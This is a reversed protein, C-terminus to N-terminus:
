RGSWGKSRARGERLVQLRGVVPVCYQRCGPKEVLLVSGSGVFHVNSSIAAMQTGFTHQSVGRVGECHRVRFLRRLARRSLRSSKARLMRRACRTETGWTIRSCSTVGHALKRRACWACGTGMRRTSTALTFSINAAMTAAISLTLPARRRWWVETIERLTPTQTQTPSLLLSTPGQSTSPPLSVV